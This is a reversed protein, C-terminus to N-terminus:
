HLLRNASDKTLGKKSGLISLSATRSILAGVRCLSHIAKVDRNAQTEESCEYPGFKMAKETGDTFRHM